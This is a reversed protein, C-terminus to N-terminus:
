LVSLNFMLYIQLYTQSKCVDYMLYFLGNENLPCRKPSQLRNLRLISIGKEPFVTLTNENIDFM